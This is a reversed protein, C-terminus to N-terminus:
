LSWKPESREQFLTVDFGFSDINWLVSCNGSPIKEFLNSDKNRSNYISQSVGDNSYRVVTHDRSDIVMYEGEFLTTIVEYLHGNIRVAPDTCPGFVIMKFDCPAYHNNKLFGVNRPIPYKYPYGFPYSLNGGVARSAKQSYKLFSKTEEHCWYPYEPIIKLKVVLYNSDKIYRSKQSDIIYCQLYYDGIIIKGCKRLLVDKEFVEFIRNRKEIGDEIDNGKISVTISKTKLGKKLSTIKNNEKEVSWEYDLLDGDTIFIGNEGFVVKENKCNVYTIKDLM